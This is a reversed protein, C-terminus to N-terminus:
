ESRGFLSVVNEPKPSPEGGADAQAKDARYQAMYNGLAGREWLMVMLAMLADTADKRIAAEDAEKAEREAQEALWQEHRIERQSKRREAHATREDLLDPALISAAREAVAGMALNRRPRKSAEAVMHKIAAEPDADLQYAWRTFTAIAGGAMKAQEHLERVAEDRAEPTIAAAAVGSPTAAVKADNRRAM